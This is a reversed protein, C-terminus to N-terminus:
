GNDLILKELDKINDIKDLLPIIKDALGAKIRMRKEDDKIGDAIRIEKSLLRLLEETSVYSKPRKAGKLRAKKAKHSKSHGLCFEEGKLTPVGCFDGNKLKAECRRTKSNM